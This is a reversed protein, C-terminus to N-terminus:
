EQNSNQEEKHLYKCSPYRVEPADKNVEKVADGGCDDTHEPPLKNTIYKCEPYKSCGYFKTGRRAQREVLEGGGTCGFESCKIGIPYSESYKCEPFKPCSIFRGRRGWKVVMPFGGPCKREVLQKEKKEMNEMAYNLQEEFPTYFEKLLAHYELKGEEVLDLKEEMSATFGENMIKEFYEVLLDCIEIGLGTPMFYGKDRQVYNRYVLTQIISAYTSPRGIGDEELAKVLSADSFRPPPKTFHQNPKIEKLNLIDDKAYHSFDIKHEEEKADRDLTLYGDFILTSGNAGFLCKGATIEMKKYEYVAPTMQASVHRNWILLYLKYQDESLFKRIQDPKRLVDTPRIAEHAQQASKKSKYTNPKEPLYKEGYSKKIFDRVKLLAENSINVSDTRMYTILGVTDGDGLEIGEYLQQAVMMTKNANFKLKNFAEQQLTSTILPPSPNRKVNRESINTVIYKQDKLYGVIDNTKEENPLEFKEGDIKELNASLIDPYGEKTLDAVISWYEQPEFAEIERERDVIIKLAVSQVRGASLRSGVKKWLIPSIKYGVIRDLLRRGIQANILDTNFERPHEFAKTVAEKTIEQFTVRFVKKDQGIHEILNWGIAEGERDPDTAIFIEKASKTDKKLKTLIKSKARVVIMKPEFNNDIDIGLTSKPLDILHGMSSLVKYKSGLIKNITKIKTPSEVIVVAKPKAM